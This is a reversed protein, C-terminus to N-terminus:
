SVNQRESGCHSSPDAQGHSGNSFNPDQLNQTRVDNSDNWNESDEMM